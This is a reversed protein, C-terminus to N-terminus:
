NKPLRKVLGVEVTVRLLQEKLVMQSGSKAAAAAAAAAQAAASQAYAGYGGEVPLRMLPVGGPAMGPMVEPNGGPMMGLASTAGAPQVNVSKVIFTNSATAFGSMVRSLELTFSRFTVIYPTIVALENTVPQQEIYDSQPGQADDDTVRVRQISDLANVRAAFLIDAMAKVEGLQAALSETGPAFKVLPRQASFSFDYKPPLVVGASEAEKQLQDVTRRLAGAFAESTIAGAPISPIPQFYGTTSAIWAQVQKDQEKAIAINDVKGGGPVPKQETAAKLTGVVETLSTLATSNRDWGKYIYFGAAGLALLAIVGGVVLFLNRKIWAM